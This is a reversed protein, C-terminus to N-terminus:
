DCDSEVLNKFLINRNPFRLADLVLKKVRQDDIIYNCVLVDDIYIILEGYVKTKICM